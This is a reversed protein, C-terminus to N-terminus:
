FCQLNWRVINCFASFDEPYDCFVGGLLLESGNEAVAGEVEGSDIALTIRFLFTVTLETLLLWVLQVYEEQVYRM